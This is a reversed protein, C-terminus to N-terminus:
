HFLRVAVRALKPTLYMSLGLRVPFAAQSSIRPGTLKPPKNGKLACVKVVLYAAAFDVVQRMKLGSAGEVVRDRWRSSAGEKGEMGELAEHVVAGRDEANSRERRRALGELVRTRLKKKGEPADEVTDSAELDPVNEKKIARRERVKQM